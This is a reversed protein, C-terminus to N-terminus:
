SQDPTQGDYTCCHGVISATPQCIFTKHASFTASAHKIRQIVWNINNMHEWVFRRIGNNGPITEFNGNPLEYQTEPGKVPIDDIFPITVHPIEEQLLFTTDGHFIQMLNTYGM